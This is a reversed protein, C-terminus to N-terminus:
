IERGAAEWSSLSCRGCVIFNDHTGGLRPYFGVKPLIRQAGFSVILLPSSNAIFQHANRHRKGDFSANNMSNGSPLKESCCM